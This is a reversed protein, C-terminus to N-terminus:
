EGRGEAQRVPKPVERQKVLSLPDNVEQSFVVQDQNISKVSGDLLKAGVRVTYTKNDPAQLMALFETRDRLVGKVTVEGILLGSLGPPRAATPRTEEGRGLPSVFPDRRGAPDYAYGPQVVPKDQPPQAPKPTQGPRATPQQASAARVASLLLVAPQKPVVRAGKGQAVSAEQLVFTTAICEATITAGAEPPTKSRVSIESVSIIRPFKSIRDFFLGLDHYTGEAQLRYPIEAHLAQQVTPQPTFRQISLNSQTALGQIRRLIDAVDKEEPLVQKLTDLRQELQAVQTEFERLRRATAVGRAIDSRLTTLRAHRLNVDAQMESVYFHCFGYAAGACVVVFAGIQGWWPLKSLSLEM